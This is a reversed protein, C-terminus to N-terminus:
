YILTFYFLSFSIFDIIFYIEIILKFLFSYLFFIKVNIKDLDLRNVLEGNVKYGENNNINLLSHMILFFNANEEFKEPDCPKNVEVAAAPDSSNEYSNIFKLVSSSVVELSSKYKKLNIGNYINKTSNLRLNENEVLCLSNKSDLKDISNLDGSNISPNTNNYSNLNMNEGQKVKICMKQYREGIKNELKTWKFGLSKKLIDLIYTNVEFNGNKFEYYLDIHIEECPLNCLIFKMFANALLDFKEYQLCIFNKILLRLFNDFLSDYQVCCIGIIKNSDSDVAILVKPNFGKIYESINEQLKFAIKQEFNIGGYFEAYKKQFIEINENAFLINLNLTNQNTQSNNIKNEGEKKNSVSPEINILNNDINNFKSSHESILNKEPPPTAPALGKNITM